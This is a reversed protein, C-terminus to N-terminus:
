SNDNLLYLFLYLPEAIEEIHFLLLFDKLCLSIANLIRTSNMKIFEVRM